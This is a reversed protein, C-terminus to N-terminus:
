KWYWMGNAVVHAITMAILVVIAGIVIGVKRGRKYDLTNKDVVM